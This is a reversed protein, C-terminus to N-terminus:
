RVEKPTSSARAAKKTATALHGVVPVVEVDSLAENTGGSNAPPSRPIRTKRKFPDELDSDGQQGSTTNYAVAPLNENAIEGQTKNNYNKKNTIMKIKIPDGSM